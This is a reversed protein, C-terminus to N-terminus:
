SQRADGEIRFWGTIMSRLHNWVGSVIVEFVHILVFAVLMFAVIFHISRASQRGGLFDVWGPLVSDLWPSMAWGGAIILPLLGFIVVLYALMQLVNYRKAAEGKPHRFRIHDRISQGIGRLEKGTPVLDRVLHRSLIAYLVYCVGNIVFVWAFFFHWARAMSLWYVSPVTAWGPFAHREWQGDANKAAGLFGTTVFERGLIRTIGVPEGNAGARSTIELFPKNGGYSSNGWYLRPHANFIALGSMLMISLALVNTWHMIRVPATHRYYDGTRPATIEDATPM